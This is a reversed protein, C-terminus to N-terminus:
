ETEEEHIRTFYRETNLNILVGREIKEIQRESMGPLDFEKVTKMDEMDFVQLTKKM